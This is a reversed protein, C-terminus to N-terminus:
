SVHAITHSVRHHPGHHDTLVRDHHHIRALPARPLKTIINGESLYITTFVLALLTVFKM